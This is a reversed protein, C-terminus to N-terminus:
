FLEFNAANLSLNPNYYPDKELTKFYEKWKDNLYEWEGPKLGAQRSASEHHILEAFPTVVNRYGSKHAKLCLDVDNYNLPFTEDLGGLQQFLEQRMM